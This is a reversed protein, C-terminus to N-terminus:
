AVKRWSGDKYLYGLKKLANRQKTTLGGPFKYGDSTRDFSRGLARRIRAEAMGVDQIQDLAPKGGLELRAKERSELRAKRTAVKRKREAIKRDEQQKLAKQKRSYLSQKDSRQKDQWKSLELYAM